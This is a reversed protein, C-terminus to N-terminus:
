NPRLSFSLRSKRGLSLAALELPLCLSSFWFRDLIAPARTALDSGGAGGKGGGRMGEEVKM